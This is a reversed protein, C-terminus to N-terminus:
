MLRKKPAPAAPIAISAMLIPAVVPFAKMGALYGMVQSLRVKAM